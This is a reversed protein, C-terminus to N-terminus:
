PGRPGVPHSSGEPGRLCAPGTSGPVRAATEGQRAPWLVHLAGRQKEGFPPRSPRGRRQGRRGRRCHTPLHPPM